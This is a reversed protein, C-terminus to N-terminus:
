IEYPQSQCSTDIFFIEKGDLVGKDYTIFEFNNNEKYEKLENLSNFFLTGINLADKASDETYGTSKLIKMQESKSYM